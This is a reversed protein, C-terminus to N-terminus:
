SWRNENLIKCGRNISAVLAGEATALPFFTSYGNVRLPGAIGLPVQVYGVVNECNKKYIIKYFSNFDQIPIDNFAILPDETANKKVFAKSLFKRRIEVGRQFEIGTYSEIEHIKISGNNLGEVIEEESKM